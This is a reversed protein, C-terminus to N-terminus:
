QVGSGPVISTPDVGLTRIAREWTEEPPVDFLLRADAGIVLWSGEVLEHELQGKAWGAHGLVLRFREPPERALETLVSVSASVHIGPLVEQSEEPPERGPPVEFLVWGGQPLVPGGGHVPADGPGNWEIDLGDLVDSVTAPLPRNIIFGLTGEDGHAVLLLVSRRFNPDNLQPMAVLFGPVLSEGDSM